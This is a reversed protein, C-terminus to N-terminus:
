AKDPQSIHYSLTLLSDVFHVNEVQVNPDTVGLEVNTFNWIGLVGLNVLRGAMMVAADEPVTLIGVQIPHEAAFRELDRSHLVSVGSVTRGVLQDRKDFAALLRVGSVSFQFHQVLALGLNGTGIIVASYQRDIGLIHGLEKRLDRVCYGYGQQGFAGFCSLDQRIQSSTLGLDEGLARSSIREVGAQELDCMHRYYRPLRSVVANSIYRQEM